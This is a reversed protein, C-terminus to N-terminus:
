FSANAIEDDDAEVGFDDPIDADRVSESERGLEVLGFTNPAPRTFIERRRVYAALSGSLSARNQPTMEKGIAALLKSVHLPKGEALIADRAEAVMSGPRLETEGLEAPGLGTAERPLMRLVDQLAQVYARAERVKGELEQIEAEKRRIREEIKRRGSM